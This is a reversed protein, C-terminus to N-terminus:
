SSLGDPVPTGCHSCFKWGSEISRGCGSCTIKSPAKSDGKKSVLVPAAALDEEQRLMQVASAHLEARLLTYDDEDIKGTELDNELDSISQYVNERERSLAIAREDALPENRRTRLPAVLFVAALVGALLAAIRAINQSLGSSGIPTLALGVKQGPGVRYAQRHLYFRTGQKFPRQRHLRESDIIVGNDAVLVNLMEVERSVQLDFRTQEGAPLRFRYGIASSGPPLPGLVDLGGNAGPVVGLASSGASLGQFEAGEPLEIHLLPEDASGVLQLGGDVHFQVDANIRVETDDHDIWYDSRTLRLTSADVSSPLPRFALSQVGGKEISPIEFRRYDEDGVTLMEGTDRWNMGEPPGIEPPLLVAARSAGRPLIQEVEVRGDESESEALFGYRLEQDGPYFPGYSYLLDSEGEEGRSLIDNAGLFESMDPPLRIEFLPPHDGRESEPIFLVADSPNNIQQAVQVLLRSGVWDVLWLVEAVELVSGDRGIPQLQIEVATKEEGSNFAIRQGFPIEQSRTGILYTVDPSNSIGTFVFEGSADTEASILGPQGDAQLSYLVVPLGSVPDGIEAPLIRVRISGPGPAPAGVSSQPGTVQHPMQALALGPVVCILLWILIPSLRFSPKRRNM